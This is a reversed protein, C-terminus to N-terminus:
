EDQKKKSLMDAVAESDMDLEAKGTRLLLYCIKDDCWDKYAEMFKVKEGNFEDENPETPERVTLTITKYGGNDGIMHIRAKMM